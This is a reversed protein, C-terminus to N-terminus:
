GQYPQSGRGTLLANGCIELPLLSHLLSPPLSFCACVECKQAQVEAVYNNKEKGGERWSERGGESGGERRGEKWASREEM